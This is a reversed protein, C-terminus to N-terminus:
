LTEIFKNEVKEKTFSLLSNKSIEYFTSGFGIIRFDIIGDFMKVLNQTAQVASWM